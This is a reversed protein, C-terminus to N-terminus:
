SKDIGLESGMERFRGDPAQTPRGKAPFRYAEPVDAEDRGMARSVERLNWRLELADPHQGVAYRLLSDARAYDRQWVAAVASQYLPEYGDPDVALARAFYAQAQAYQGGELSERGRGLFTELMLERASDLRKNLELARALGEVGEDIRGQLLRLRGLQWHGEYAAPDLAVCRRFAREAAPLRHRELLDLGARYTETFAASRAPVEPAESACSVICVVACLHSIIRYLISNKLVNFLSNVQPKACRWPADDRLHLLKLKEKGNTLTETFQLGDRIM